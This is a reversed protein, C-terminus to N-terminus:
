VIPILREIRAALQALSQENASTQQVQGVINLVIDIIGSLSGVVPINSSISGLARLSFVLVNAATHVTQSEANVPKETILRKSEDDGDPPKPSRSEPVTHFKRLSFHRLFKSSFAKRALPVRRVHKGADKTSFQHHAHADIHLTMTPHLLARANSPFQLCCLLHLDSLTLASTM